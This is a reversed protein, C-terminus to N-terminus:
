KRPSVFIIDCGEAPTLLMTTQQSEVADVQESMKHAYYLYIALFLLFFFLLTWWCSRNSRKNHVKNLFDKDQEFINIYNWFVVDVKSNLLADDLEKPSRTNYEAPSMLHYYHRVKNLVMQSFAEMFKDDMKEAEDKGAIVWERVRNYIHLQEVKTLERDKHAKLQEVIEHTKM